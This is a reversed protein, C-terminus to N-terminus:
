IIYEYVKARHSWLEKESVFDFYDSKNVDDLEKFRKDLYKSYKELINLTVSFDKFFIRKTFTTGEILDITKKIRKVEIKTLNHIEKLESYNSHTLLIDKKFSKKLNRNLIKISIVLVLSPVFCICTFIFIFPIGIFLFGFADKFVSLSSQTRVHALRVTGIIGSAYRSSTSFDPHLHLNNM